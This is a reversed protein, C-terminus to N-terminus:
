EEGLKRGCMPCYNIKVKGDWESGYKNGYFDGFITRLEKLNSWVCTYFQIGLIENGLHGEILPEQNDSCYDCILDNM